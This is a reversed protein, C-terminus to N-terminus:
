RAHEISQVWEGHQMLLVRRWDHSDLFESDDPWKDDREEGINRKGSVWYGRGRTPMEEGYTHYIRLEPFRAALAQLVPMPPAWATDFQYTIHESVGLEFDDARDEDISYAGWKTGWNDSQWDYGAKDYTQALISAPVPIIKHFCFVYEESAKKDTRFRLDMEHPKYEPDIGRLLEVARAVEAPAGVLTVLNTCHNPM